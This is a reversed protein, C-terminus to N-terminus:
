LNKGTLLELIDIGKKPPPGYENFGVDGRKYTLKYGNMFDKFGARFVMNWGEGIDHARRVCLSTEFFLLIGGIIYPLASSFNEPIIKSTVLHYAFPSFYLISFGIFCVIINGIWYSLRNIRGSFFRKM